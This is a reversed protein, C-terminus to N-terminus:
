INAGDIGLDKLHDCVKLKVGSFCSHVKEEVCAV